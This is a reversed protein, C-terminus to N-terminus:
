DTPKRNTASITGLLVTSSRHNCYSLVYSSFAQEGINSMKGRGPSFNLDKWSRLMVTTPSADLHFWLENRQRARFSFKILQISFLILRTLIKKARSVWLSFFVIRTTEPFLVMASTISVSCRCLLLNSTAQLTPLSNVHFSWGCCYCNKAQIITPGGSEFESSFQSNKRM